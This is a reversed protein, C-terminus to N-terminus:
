VQTCTTMDLEQRQQATAVIDRLSDNYSILSIAMQANDPQLRNNTDQCTAACDSHADCWEFDHSQQKLQM